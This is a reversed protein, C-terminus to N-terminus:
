GLLSGMIGRPLIVNFGHRFIAFLLIPGVVSGLFIWTKRREGYLMMVIAFFPISALVFGLGPLLLVYGAFAALFAGASINAGRERKEVAEAPEAGIAQWLLLLSLSCLLITNIWPMFAPDPTDPLSRKPIDAAIYGYAMGLLLLVIAAAINRQKMSWDLM